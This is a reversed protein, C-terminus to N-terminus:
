RSDVPYSATVHNQSVKSYKMLLGLLLCFAFFLSFNTWFYHDFLSLAVCALTSAVLWRLAINLRQPQRLAGTVTTVILAYWTIAGFIGLEIVIMLPVNHLPQRQPETKSNDVITYQGIGSGTPWYRVLLQGAQQYQTARETLSLQEIISNNPQVRSTVLPWLVIGLMLATGASTLLITRNAKALWWMAIIIVGFVLLAARSFTLVLGATLVTNCLLLWRQQRLPPRQAWLWMAALWTIVLWAATTNPHPLTGYARLWRGTTTMVVAPGSEWALHEALGLWKSATVTQTCWQWFVVTTQLLGTTVLAWGITRASLHSHSIIAMLGLGACLHLWYYFSVSRDDAWYASFLTLMMIGLGLTLPLWHPTTTRQYWELVFVVLLGILILDFGDLNITTFDNIGPVLEYHTQWPVLMIFAVIGLSLITELTRKM